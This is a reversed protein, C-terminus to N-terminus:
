LFEFIMDNKRLQFPTEIKFELNLVKRTDNLNETRNSNRKEAISYVYFHVLSGAICGYSLLRLKTIYNM